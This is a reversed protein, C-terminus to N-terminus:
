LSSSALIKKIKTWGGTSVFTWPQQWSPQQPLGPAAQYPLPKMPSWQQQFTEARFCEFEAITATVAHNREATLLGMPVEPGNEGLV